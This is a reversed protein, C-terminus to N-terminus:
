NPGYYPESASPIKLGGSSMRSSAPLVYVEDAGGVNSSFGIQDNGVWTPFGDDANPEGPYDTLRPNVAGNSLNVVFIRVAGVCAGGSFTRADFAARNGDPSVVVRNAVSCAESGLSSAVVSVSGTSADVRVLQNYRSPDPGMAALVAAGDPYFSPGAFYSPTTTLAQFGTGNANVRGLHSVSNQNYAFVVTNGDKSFVPTRFNTQGGSAVLVRSPSPANSATAVDLEQGGHVFVVRRGDKSLSPHQDDGSTTLQIPHSYNFDSDDDVYVDRERLFAFGRSFSGGSDGPGCGLVMAASLTLCASLPKSTMGSSRRIQHACRIFDGTALVDIRTVAEITPCEGLFQGPTRGLLNWDGLVRSHTGM